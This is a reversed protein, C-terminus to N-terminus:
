WIRSKWSSALTPDQLLVFVPPERVCYCLEGIWWLSGSPGCDNRLKYQINEREECEPQIDKNYFMPHVEAKGSLSMFLVKVQVKPTDSTWSFCRWGESINQWLVGGVFLWKIQIYAYSNTFLAGFRIWDREHLHIKDYGAMIIVLLSHRCM